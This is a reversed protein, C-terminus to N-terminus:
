FIFSIALGNYYRWTGRFFITEGEYGIQFGWNKQQPAQWYLSYKTLVTPDGLVSNSRSETLPILDERHNEVDIVLVPTVDAKFRVSGRKYPGGASLGILPGGVHFSSFDNLLHIRRYGARIDMQFRRKLFPYSLLGSYDYMREETPYGVASVTEAGGLLVSYPLGFYTIRYLSLAVDAELTVEKYLPGRLQLGAKTYLNPSRTGEYVVGIAASPIVEYEGALISAPFLM